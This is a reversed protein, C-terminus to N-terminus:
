AKTRKRMAALCIASAGMLMLWLAISADDGTKPPASPATPQPTPIATPAPTATPVPTATPQAEEWSLVFPSFFEAQFWIGNAALHLTGETVSFNEVNQHAGNLHELYLTEKEAETIGDPYPLFVNYRGKLEVPTGDADLLELKYYLSNEGNQPYFKAIFEINEGYHIARDPIIIMPQTIVEPLEDESELPESTLVRVCNDHIHAIYEIRDPAASLDSGEKWWGVAVVGGAFQGTIENVTYVTLDSSHAHYVRFMNNEYAEQSAQYESVSDQLIQVQDQAWWQRKGRFNEAGSNNYAVHTYEASPPAVFLKVEAKSYDANEPLSEPDIVFHIVGDQEDYTYGVGSPLDNAEVNLRSKPVPQWDPEYCPWPKPDGNVAAVYLQSFSRLAGSEDYWELKLEREDTGTESALDLTYVHASRRTISPYDGSELMMADNGNVKCTWAEDGAEAPMKVAVGVQQASLAGADATELLLYGKDTTATIKARDADSIDYMPVIDAALTQPLKIEFPDSNEYQIDIALYEFQLDGNDDKWAYGCVYPDGSEEPIFMSNEKDYMGAFVSINCVSRPTFWGYGLMNVMASEPAGPYADGACNMSDGSPSIVGAGIYMEDMNLGNFLMTLWDTEDTVTITLLGDNYQYDAALGELAMKQIREEPVPKLVQFQTYDNSDSANAIAEDLTIACATGCLATLCLMMVLALIWRTHKM